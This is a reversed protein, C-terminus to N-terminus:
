KKILDILSILIMIYWCIYMIIASIIVIYVFAENFYRMIWLSGFTLITSIFPEAMLFLKLKGKIISNFYFICSILLSIISFTIVHNHTTNLMDHIYKGTQIPEEWSDWNDESEDQAPGNFQEVTGTTSMNTTLYVYCLGTFIGISITTLFLILVIKADKTLDKLTTNNQM